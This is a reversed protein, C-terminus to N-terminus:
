LTKMKLDKLGMPKLHFIQFEILRFKNTEEKVQHILFMVWEILDWLTKIAKLVDIIKVKFLLDEVEQLITKAGKSVM